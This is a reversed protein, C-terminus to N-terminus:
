GTWSTNGAKTPPGNLSVNGMVKLWSRVNTSTAVDPETM